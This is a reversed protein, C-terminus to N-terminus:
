YILNVQGNNGEIFMILGSFIIKYMSQNHSCTSDISSGMSFLVFLRLPKQKMVNLSSSGTLLIMSFFYWLIPSLLTCASKKDRLHFKIVQYKTQCM